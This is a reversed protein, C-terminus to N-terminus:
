AKGGAAEGDDIKRCVGNRQYLLCQQFGDHKGRGAAAIERTGYEAGRGQVPEDATTEATTTETVTTTTTEETEESSSCATLVMAATIVVALLEKKM